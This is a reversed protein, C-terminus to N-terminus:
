IYPSPTASPIPLPKPPKVDLAKRKLPSLSNLWIPDYYNEPLGRLETDKSLHRGDERRERPRGPNGPLLKGLGTRNPKLQDLTKMINKVQPSRWHRERVFVKKSNPERDSEDSSGGDIGLSMTM